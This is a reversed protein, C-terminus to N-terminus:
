NYLIKRIENLKDLEVKLLDKGNRAVQSYKSAKDACTIFVWCPLCCWMLKGVMEENPSETFVTLYTGSGEHQHNECQHVLCKM